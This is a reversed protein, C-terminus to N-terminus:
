QNPLRSNFQGCHRFDRDLLRNAIFEDGFTGYSNNIPALPVGISSAVANKFSNRPIDALSASRISVDALREYEETGAM